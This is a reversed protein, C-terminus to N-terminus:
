KGEPFGQKGDSVILKEKLADVQREVKRKAAEEREFADEPAKGLLYGDLLLMLNVPRYKTQEVSLNIHNKLFPVFAKRSYGNNHIHGHLRITTEPMLGEDEKNWPYHSFSIDYASYPIAFPRVQKFGCDRYFSHRQKDHNGRILLKRAGTLHKAIVNKFLANGRYSLDGLHLLTAGDPVEQAWEEMMVEEHREPRHCFGVINGHGFHSDATVWTSAPEISSPDFSKSM